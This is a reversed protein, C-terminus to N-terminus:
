PYSFQGAFEGEGAEKGYEYGFYVREAVKNM